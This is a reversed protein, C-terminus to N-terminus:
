PLELDQEKFQEELESRHKVSALSNIQVYAIMPKSPDTYVIIKEGDDTQSYGSVYFLDDISSVENSNHDVLYQLNNPYKGDLDMACSDLDAKVSKVKRAMLKFNFSEGEFTAPYRGYSLSPPLHFLCFYAFFLGFIAPLRQCVQTNKSQNFIAVLLSFIVFSWILFSPSIAYPKLHLGRQFPYSFYYFGLSIVLILVVKKTLQEVGATILHGAMICVLCIIILGISWSRFLNPEFYYGNVHVLYFVAFSTAALLLLFLSALSLLRQKNLYM